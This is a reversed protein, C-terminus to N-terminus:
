KVEFEVTVRRVEDRRDVKEFLDVDFPKGVNNGALDEITTEIELAHRGRTWPQEPSFRWGREEHTLTAEGALARRGGKLGVVRILRLALAQELPEGFEVALTTRTGAAPASITWRLPDPPTRDAAAIRFTKEFAARLPRGEADRCDAGVVLSYSNGEEFVPGIDELPKVGRKIRGPDILLTLRTMSPDWLEEDLELFPLEIVRGAADRIQVQGYTGGRSMPASFQVYFKLQNEPLMAASPFVREVATTPTMTDAPLTFFALVPAAGPLRLEARYRVGRVPPFRPEFRLRGSAMSWTGAMPPTATEGAQEAYVALISPWVADDVPAPGLRRLTEAPVGVAEVVPPAASRLWHLAPAEAAPLAAAIGALAACVAPRAWAIM